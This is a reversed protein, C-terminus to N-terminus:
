APPLEEREAMKNAMALEDPTNVEIVPRSVETVRIRWGNELARLQELSERVELPTQAMRCFAELFDARYAYLGLHHLASGDDWSGGHPIVSRSFYLAHGQQDMVVKVASATQHQEKSGFRTAVTTMDPWYDVSESTAFPSVLARLMEQQVFPQDGQVNAVIDFGPLQRSADAVRDTGTQCDASTMVAQGGAKEVVDVIERHDTAVVVRDFVGAAMTRLLVWEVMPRGAILALPKGPLRTSAHRAPIVALTKPMFKQVM